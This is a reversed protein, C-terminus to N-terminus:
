KKRRELEGRKIEKKRGEKGRKGNEGVLNVKSLFFVRAKDRYNNYSGAM